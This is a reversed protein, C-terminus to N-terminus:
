DRPPWKRPSGRKPLPSPTPHRGSTLDRVWTGLVSTADDATAVVIDAEGGTSDTVLLRIRVGEAEVWARVVILSWQPKKPV